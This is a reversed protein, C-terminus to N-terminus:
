RTKLGMKLLPDFSASSEHLVTGQNRNEIALLALAIFLVINPVNVLLTNVVSFVEGEWRGQILVTTEAKSILFQLALAGASTATTFLAGTLRDKMSIRLNSDHPRLLRIASPLLLWGLCGEVALGYIYLNTKSLALQRIHDTSLPSSAWLLVVGGSVGMIAMYKLVFFLAGRFRLLSVRMALVLEPVQENVVMQVLNKTAMLAVVFFYVEAFQRIFGVPITIMTARQIVQDMNSSRTEGGFVSHQTSLTNMLWHIWATNLEKLALVLIAAVSCPIWLVMHRRILKLTDDWLHKM